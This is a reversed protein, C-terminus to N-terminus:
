RSGATSIRRRLRRSWGFAGAAGLLPLPAPAPDAPPAGVIVNIQRTTDNANDGLYWSGITTGSSNSNLGVSTLTSGSFIAYSAIEAGSTYNYISFKNPNSNNVWNAIGFTSTAPSLIGSGATFPTVNTINYQRYLNADGVPEIGSCIAVGASFAGGPTGVCENALTSNLSDLNLSGKTQIKLNGADEFIYYTLIAEARGQSLLLVAPVALGTLTLRSAAKSLRNLAQLSM